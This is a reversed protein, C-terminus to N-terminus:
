DDYPSPPVPETSRQVTTNGFSVPVANQADTLDDSSQRGASANQPAERAAWRLEIADPECYTPVGYQCYRPLEDDLDMVNANTDRDLWFLWVLIVSMFFDAALELVRPLWIISGHFAMLIVAILQLSCYVCVCNSFAMLKKHKKYMATSRPLVGTQELTLLRRFVERSVNKIARVVLYVFRALSAIAPVALVWEVWGLDFASCLGSSGAYVALCIFGPRLVQMSFRSTVVYWGHAVLWQALFLSGHHGVCLILYMVLHITNSDGTEDETILWLVWFIQSLLFLCLAGSVLFHMEMEPAFHQVWNFLWVGLLTGSLAIMVVCFYKAYFWRYDLFGGPNRFVYSATFNFFDSDGCNLYFPTYVGRTEIKEILVAEDAPAEPTYTRYPSIMQPQVCALLCPPHKEFLSITQDDILGFFLPASSNTLRIEFTGGADFGYEYGLHLGFRTFSHLDFHSSLCLILLPVLLLDQLTEHLYRSKIKPQKESL